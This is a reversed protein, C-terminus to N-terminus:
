FKFIDSLVLPLQEDRLSRTKFQQVIGTEVQHHLSHNGLKLDFNGCKEKLSVHNNLHFIHIQHRHQLFDM